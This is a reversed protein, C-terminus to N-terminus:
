GLGVCRESPEVELVDHGALVEVVIIWSVQGQGTMMVIVVLPRVQRADIWGGPPFHPEEVGAPVLPRSVKAPNAGLEDPASRRAPSRDV